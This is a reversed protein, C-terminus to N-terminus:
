PRPVATAVRAAAHEALDARVRSLFFSYCYYRYSDTNYIAANKHKEALQLVREKGIFHGEAGHAAVRCQRINADLTATYHEYGKMTPNCSDCIDALGVNHGVEHILVGDHLHRPTGFSFAAGIEMMQLRLGKAAAVFLPSDSKRVLWGPHDLSAIIENIKGRVYTARLAFSSSDGPQGIPAPNARRTASRGHWARAGFFNEFNTRGPWTHLGVHRRAEYLMGEALYLCAGLADVEAQTFGIFKFNEAHGNRPSLVVADYIAQCEAPTRELSMNYPAVPGSVRVAHNVEDKAASSLHPQHHVYASLTLMHYRRSHAARAARKRPDISEGGMPAHM